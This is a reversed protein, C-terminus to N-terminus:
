PGHSQHQRVILPVINYKKITSVPQWIYAPRAYGTWQYLCSYYRWETTNV